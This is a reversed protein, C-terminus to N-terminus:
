LTFCRATFGRLDSMGPTLMEVRPIGVHTIKKRAVCSMVARGMAKKTPNRFLSAMQKKPMCGGNLTEQQNDLRLTFLCEGSDVVIRGTNAMM